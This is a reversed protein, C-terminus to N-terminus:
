AQVAPRQWDTRGLLDRLMMAAALTLPGGMAAFVYRGTNSGGCGTFGGLMMAFAAACLSGAVWTRPLRGVRWIGLPACWALGYWFSVDKLMRVADVLSGAVSRRALGGAIAGPAANESGGLFRVLSMTAAAGIAMAAIWMAIRWRKAESRFTILWWAGAM